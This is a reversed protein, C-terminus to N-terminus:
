YLLIKCLQKIGKKYFRYEGKKTKHYGYENDIEQIKKHHKQNDIIKQYFGPPMKADTGISDRWIAIAKSVNPVYATIVLDDNSLILLVGTDTLAEQRNTTIHNATCIIREGLGIETMIYMLRELREDRAHSSLKFIVSVGGKGTLGPTLILLISSAFNTM